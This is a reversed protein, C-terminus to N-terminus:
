TSAKPVADKGAKSAQRSPSGDRNSTKGALGKPPLFDHVPFPILTSHQGPMRPLTRQGRRLPMGRITRSITPAKRMEVRVDFPFNPDPQQARRDGADPWLMTFLVAETSDHPPPFATTIEQVSPATLEVPLAVATLRQLDDTRIRYQGNKPDAEVADTSYTRLSRISPVPQDTEQM